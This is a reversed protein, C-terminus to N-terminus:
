SVKVGIRAGKFEGMVGSSYGYQAHYADATLTLPGSELEVITPSSEVTIGSSSVVGTTTAYLRAYVQGTIGRMYVVLTFITGAPYWAPDFYVPLASTPNRWILGSTLAAVMSTAASASGTLRRTGSLNATVTAAGSIAGALFRPTFTIETITAVVQVAGGPTGSLARYASLRAAEAAAAVISGSLRRTNTVRATVTCGCNITGYLNRPTQAIWTLSGSVGTGAVVSGAMARAGSLNATVSAGGMPVGRLALIMRPTATVTVGGAVQGQLTRPTITAETMTATVTAGCTIAGAMARLGSLKGVGVVGAAIGPSKLLVDRKLTASVAAGGTISGILRRGNLIRGSVSAACSIAGAM